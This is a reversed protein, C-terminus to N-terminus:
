CRYYCPVLINSLRVQDALLSGLSSYADAFYPGYLISEKLRLEAEENRGQTRCCLCM